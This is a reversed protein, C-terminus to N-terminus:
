LDQASMVEAAARGLDYSIQDFMDDFATFLARNLAIGPATKSFAVYRALDERSMPDYALLLYSYVWEQTQARVDPEQAWVDALIQDETLVNEFAGGDMLGTYFAFNSNLAGVVNNDILGNAAVFAELLKFRATKDRMAIAAAERAIADVSEDLLARRASVELAVFKAGINSQMFSLAVANDQGAVAALFGQKSQRHMKLPDYIKAVTQAWQAGAREPFLDTGVQGGYKIGEEHMIDVIDSMQLADYLMEADADQAMAASGFGLGVIGVLTLFGRRIM